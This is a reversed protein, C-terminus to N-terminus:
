TIDVVGKKLKWFFFWFFFTPIIKQFYIGLLIIAMISIWKELLMIMVYAYEEKQKIDIYKEKVLKDTVRWTFEEIMRDDEMNLTDYFIDMKDVCDASDPL